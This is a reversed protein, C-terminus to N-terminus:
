GLQMITGRLKHAVLASVWLLSALAAIYHVAELSEGYRITQGWTVLLIAAGFAAFFAAANWLVNKLRIRETRKWAFFLIVAALVAGPLVWTLDCFIYALKETPRPDGGDWLLTDARGTRYNLYWWSKDTHWQSADDSDIRGDGQIIVMAGDDTEYWMSGSVLKRDLVRDQWGYKQSLMDWRTTYCIQGQVYGMGRYGVNGRVYDYYDIVLAGDERLYVSKIADECNLYVPVNLFAVAWMGISLLMLVAAAFALIRSSRITKNVRKLGSLGPEGVIDGPNKLNNWERACNDCERLHVEVLERSAQSAMNEAYLPLLDRIVDCHVKM